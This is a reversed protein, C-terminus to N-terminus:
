TYTTVVVASCPPFRPQNEADAQYWAKAEQILRNLVQPAEAALRAELGYDPKEVHANFPVCRVRRDVAKGTENLRLQTNSSYILKAVPRYMFANQHKAEIKVEDGGTLAKIFPLDLSGSGIDEGIALRKGVLCAGDFRNDRSKLILTDPVAGAYDGMAKRILRVLTGKGNGGNGYFNWFCQEKTEGTLGYGFLRLLYLTSEADGCTCWQMFRDTEPTEGAEPKCNTSQTFRDAPKAARSKGTRM